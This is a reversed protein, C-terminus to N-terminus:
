SIAADPPGISIQPPEPSVDDVGQIKRLREAVNDSGAGTLCGIAELMEEVTFGAEIAEKKIENLSRKGSTTVVWKKTNSM